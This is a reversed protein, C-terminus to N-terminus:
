AERMVLLLIMFLYAINKRFLESNIKLNNYYDQDFGFPVCVSNIKNSGLINNIHESLNPMTGVVLDSNKYGFKEIIGLLFVFPNKKSIGLETASLPWIDRIEFILKAKFQKKYRFGNLITLLSLSSVIIVDPREIKNTPLFFLKLEFDLWSLIRNISVTKIYKITKIRYLDIGSINEHNYIKNYKPYKGFHNSDSSILNVTNGSKVFRRALAFIRSEFGVESSSAYKSIIWIKM